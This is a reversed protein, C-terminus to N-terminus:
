QTPAPPLLRRIETLTSYYVIGDPNVAIDLRCDRTVVDDAVIQSFDPGAPTLRRMFQTVSECILLSEGLTPYVQGSIFEMGAVAVASEFSDPARNQQTFHHIAPVKQGLECDTYPFEGSPWGYNGGSEIINLEECTVGTTDSGYMRGSTPHFTFDFPVRFGYAYIRPDADPDDVFPNDPAASGDEKNVRLVKGVPTGLDQAQEKGRPGKALPLDYDGLTLYLFGDAGFHLGGNINFPHNPDTQPLDGIIVKPDTGVNATDKFRVVKPTGAAPPGPETTELFYVYVFGNSEFEPDLALGTLGLQHVGGVEVHAFPDPLLQGEATIVRINGTWHEAYFLRGDPAFEIADAQAIPTVLESRLGFPLKEDGGGGCAVAVVAALLCVTAFASRTLFRRSQRLVLICPNM